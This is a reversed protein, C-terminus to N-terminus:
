PHTTWGASRNVLGCPPQGGYRRLRSPPSAFSGDRSTASSAIIEAAEPGNRYQAFIGSDWLRDALKCGTGAHRRLANDVDQAAHIIRATWVDAEGVVGGGAKGVVGAAAARVRRAVSGPLQSTVM